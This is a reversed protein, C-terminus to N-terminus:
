IADTNGPGRICAAGDRLWGALACEGRGAYVEAAADLDVADLGRRSLNAALLRDAEAADYPETSSGPWASPNTPM